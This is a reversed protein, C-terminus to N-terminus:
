AGKRALTFLQQLIPLDDSHVQWQALNTAQQPTLKMRETILKGDINVEYTGALPWHVLLTGTIQSVQLCAVNRVAGGAHRLRLTQNTERTSRLCNRTM